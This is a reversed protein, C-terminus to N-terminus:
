PLGIRAAALAGTCDAVVCAMNSAPQSLSFLEAHSRGALMFAALATLPTASFLEPVRQALSTRQAAPNIRQCAAEELKALASGALSSTCLVPCSSLGRMVSPHDRFATPGAISCTSELVARPRASRTLASAESELILAVGGDALWATQGQPAVHGLERHVHQVLETHEEAAVVLARSWQGCAIRQSALHLADLGATRSGIITQCGGAIRYTMSLHASGVNPVGEAFLMPNAADIGQEVVQQYYRECYLSAGHMSGLIASASQGFSEPSDIRADAYAVSTAALVLKVYQSLRRARRAQLWPSLMDDTLVCPPPSSPSGTLSALFADNGVAGPMVVGVGTVWVRALSRATAASAAVPMVQVRDRAPAAEQMPRGLIMCTNSGGFGLSVGLTNRIEQPQASGVNLQLGPFQIQQSQVNPTPPVLSQEMASASLILEVAGAGGLTHGLAAKFAAVSVRPLDSGFVRSIAAYEAADNDPTATAHASIFDIQSPTLGASQLAETVARAAGDGEPHPQTLHHMDSSEGFGLVRAWAKSGRSRADQGRELVVVGYGEAVKMGERDFAFPMQPREAVLRLSNFGAYVYESVTDYGGAIVVDCEGARLLTVGLAISALASSCASCTTAAIGAPELHDVLPKLVSGALFHRLAQPDRTRLFEGGARMGHLTTGMVIGLRRHSLSQKSLQAHQLAENVAWLLYRAARPKDPEFDAPLEPAQGGGKNQSPQQELASMPGIGCRGQVVADWTSQRSLGLCTVLGAGTIVVSAPEPSQATSTTQQSQSISPM